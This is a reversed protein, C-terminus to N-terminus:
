RATADIMAGIADRARPDPLYRLHERSLAFGGPRTTPRSEGAAEDWTRAPEDRWTRLLDAIGEVDGSVWLWWLLGHPNSEAGAVVQMAYFGTDAKMAPTLRTWDGDPAVPLVSRDWAGRGIEGRVYAELWFYRQIAHPSRRGLTSYSLQIYDCIMGAQVAPEGRLFEFVRAESWDPAIGYPLGYVRRVNDLTMQWPGVTTQGIMDRTELPGTRGWRRRPDPFLSRGEKIAHAWLDELGVDPWRRLARGAALVHYAVELVERGGAGYDGSAALLREFRQQLDRQEDM